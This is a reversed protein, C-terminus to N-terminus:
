RSQTPGPLSGKAGVPLHGVGWSDVTLVEPEVGWALAVSRQSARCM